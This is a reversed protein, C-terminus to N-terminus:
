CQRARRAGARAASPPWRRTGSNGSSRRAGRGTTRGLRSRAVPGRDDQLLGADFAAIAFPEIFAAKFAWAFVIAIVFSWGALQGPMVYLIAAAPALMLLFIVITLGWMIITLWVANKVITKGNQAYLVVGQRATEWPSASDRRINYGLIVEDVYTLSMRVISGIFGILGEPGPDALLRRHRRAPGHNRRHCRQGAPRRRVARQGRCLAATVVVQRAYAIQGQGGPVDRGDILHVMVAVHGAKVIYLIYERIWYVALSVLGFGFIGGWVAFAPPSDPGTSYPWRRLWRGRGRRDGHHLGANHCFLRGNSVPRVALQASCHWGDQRDFFGM